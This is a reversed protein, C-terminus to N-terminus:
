SQEFQGDRIVTDNVQRSGATAVVWGNLEIQPLTAYMGASSLVFEGEESHYHWFHFIPMTAM